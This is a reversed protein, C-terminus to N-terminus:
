ARGLAPPHYYDKLLDYDAATHDLVARQAAPSIDQWRTKPGETQLRPFVVPRGIRRSMEAALDDLREIPYVASFRGLDSGLYLAQPQTHHKIAGSVLQYRRLRTLYTSADPMAPVALVFRRLGAFRGKYTDRRYVIRNGYSSLLRQAPDRFVAFTFYGDLGDFLAPTMPLSREMKHLNAQTIESGTDDTRIDHLAAKISSSAVKPISFYAIRHDALTMPM